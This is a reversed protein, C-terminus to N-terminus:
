KPMEAKCARGLDDWLWGCKTCGGLSLGLVVLCLIAAVRQKMLPVIAYDPLPSSRASLKELGGAM